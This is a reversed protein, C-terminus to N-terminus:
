WPCRVGLDAALAELTTLHEAPFPIGDRERERAMAARLEGPVRVRDFGPAVPSAHIADILRDVREVFTAYPLFASPDIAMLFLSIGLHQDLERMDRVETSMHGGSLVGTLVEWMLALGYGRHGGMPLLAGGDRWKRADTTPAGAADVILGPPLPTGTDLAENLTEMSVADLGMDLIIPAHRGAPSAISTAQDGLVKSAGGWPPFFPVSNTIAIGIMREPLARSSYWGMQATVDCNRVSAMGVGFSKAADIAHRMGHAGAVPGWADSADLVTTNGHQRVPTWDATLSLGGAKSREAIQELRWLSEWLHGHLGAWVMAEAAITADDQPMGLARLVETAFARVQGPLLVATMPQLGKWNLHM